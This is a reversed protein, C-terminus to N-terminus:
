VIVERAADLVAQINKERIKEPMYVNIADILEESSVINSIASAIGLMVTNVTPLNIKKSFFEGDFSVVNESRITKSNVIIKGEPKLLLKLNENYLTEDLIVIYDAKATESRDLVPKSDLKTFARVPAGRREPGFSPFALSYHMNGNLAYAAGLLKAATFAGNGGRGLWLFETM